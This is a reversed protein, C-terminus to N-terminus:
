KVDTGEVLNRIKSFTKGSLWENSAQDNIDRDPVSITGDDGWTAAFTSDPARITLVKDSLSWKCKDIFSFHNDAIDEAPDFSVDWGCRGDSVIVLANSDDLDGDSYVEYYLGEVSNEVSNDSTNEAPNAPTGGGCGALMAAAVVATTLTAAIRM